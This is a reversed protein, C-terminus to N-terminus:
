FSVKCLLCSFIEYQYKEPGAVHRLHVQLGQQAWVQALPGKGKRHALFSCLPDQNPHSDSVVWNSWGIENGKVDVLMQVDEFLLELAAVNDERELHSQNRFKKDFLLM